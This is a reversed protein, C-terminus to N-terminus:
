WLFSTVSLRKLNYSSINVAPYNSKWNKWMESFYNKSLYNAYTETWFQSHCESNFSVSMFSEPAIVYWYAKSGHIRYQLIHGFEHQLM